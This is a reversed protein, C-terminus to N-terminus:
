HSDASAEGPVSVSVVAMAAVGNLMTGQPRRATPRTRAFTNNSRYNPRRMPRVDVGPPM